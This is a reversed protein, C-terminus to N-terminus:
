KAENEKEKDPQQHPPTLVGGSMIIRIAEDITMNLYIIKDEPVFLTFGTFPAPSTPVFVTIIKQGTKERLDKLGDATIFGTAYIGAHPFEVAVVSKFETKKEISIFTDIFQRAYPYVEKIIPFRTMIWIEIGKFLKKGLFSATFYGVLYIIIIVIPFGFIANWVPTKDIGLSAMDIISDIISLITYGLPQAINNNVFRFAILLLFLTIMTPLLIILGRVFLGRKKDSM